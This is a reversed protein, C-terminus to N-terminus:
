GTSWRTSSPWVRSRSSSRRRPGGPIGAEEGPAQTPSLLGLLHRLETMAARGSAEVALMAARAEGPAETLVQRAAGAQVIMVSVSHTSSM